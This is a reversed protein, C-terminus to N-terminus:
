LLFSLIPIKQWYIILLMVLWLFLVQLLHHFILVFLSLLDFLDLSDKDFQLYRLLEGRCDESLLVRMFAWSEAEEATSSQSRETCFGSLDGGPAMAAQLSTFRQYLSADEAINDIRAARTKESFSILKGGFGFTAGCPRKLWKPPPPVAAPPRQTAFANPDPPLPDSHAHM